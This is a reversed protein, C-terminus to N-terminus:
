RCDLTEVEGGVSSIGEFTQTVVAKRHKVNVAALWMKNHPPDNSWLLFLTDFARGVVRAEFENAQEVGDVFRTISRVTPTATQLGSFVKDRLPKIVDDRPENGKTALNFPAASFPTYGRDGTWKQTRFEFDRSAKASSTCALIRPVEQGHVESGTSLSLCLAVLPIASWPNAILQKM